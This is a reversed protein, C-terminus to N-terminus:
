DKNINLLDWSGQSTVDGGKYRMTVEFDSRKSESGDLHQEFSSKIVFISDGKKAYSYGDVFDLNKDKSDDLVFQKAVEYADGREPMRAQYISGGTAFHIVICIFIAAVILLLWVAGMASKKKEAKSKLYKNNKAM